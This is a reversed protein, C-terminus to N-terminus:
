DKHSLCTQNDDKNYGGYSPQLYRENFSIFPELNDIQKKQAVDGVETLKKFSKKDRHGNNQAAAECETQKQVQTQQGELLQDIQDKHEMTMSKIQANMRETESKLELKHKQILEQRVHDQRIIEKQFTELLTTFKIRM